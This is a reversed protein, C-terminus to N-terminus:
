DRGLGDLHRPNTAIDGVGSAAIGRYSLLRERLARCEEEPNADALVIRLGDEVLDRLRRGRLAAVAKAQRVMEDPLEITTKM